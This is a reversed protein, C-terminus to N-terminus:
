ACGLTNYAELRATAFDGATKDIEVYKATMTAADNVGQVTQVFKNYTDRVGTIQYSTVDKAADEVENFQGALKDRLQRFKTANADGGAAAYATMQTITGDLEGMEVCLEDQRNQPTSRDRCGVLVFFGICALAALRRM